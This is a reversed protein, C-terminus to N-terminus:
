AAGLYSRSDGNYPGGVMSPVSMPQGIGMHNGGIGPSGMPKRPTFANSSIGNPPPDGHHAPHMAEVIFGQDMMYQQMNQLQAHLVDCTEMYQKTLQTQLRLANQCRSFDHMMNSLQRRLAVECDFDNGDLRKKKRLGSFEENGSKPISEDGGNVDSSGTESFEDSATGESVENIFGHGGHMAKQLIWAKERQLNAIEQEQKSAKQMLQTLQVHQASVSLGHGPRHMAHDYRHSAAGAFPRSNSSRSVMLEENQAELEKVRQELGSMKLKKRARTNRAHIKNRERKEEEQSMMSEEISVMKANHEQNQSNSVASASRRLGLNNDDTLNLQPNETGDESYEQRTSSEARWPRAFLVKDELDKPSAKVRSLQSEEEVGGGEDVM